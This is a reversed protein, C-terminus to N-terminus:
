VDSGPVLSELTDCQFRGGIVKVTAGWRSAEEYDEWANQPYFCEYGTGDDVDRFVVRYKQSRRGPRECGLVARGPCKRLDLVPWRPRRDPGGTETATRSTRWRDVHYECWDDYVPEEHTRDECEEREEYVPDCQRDCVEDVDFSGNGNDRRVTRCNVERCTEGVKVKVPRCDCGRCDIVTETGRQRRVDSVDYADAPNADCWGSDALQEYREVQQRRTWSRSEVEATITREWSFFAWVALLVVALVGATIGLRRYQDGPRGPLRDRRDRSETVAGPGQHTASGQRGRERHGEQRAARSQERAKRAAPEHHARRAERREQAERRAESVADAVTEAATGYNTERLEVEESGDM